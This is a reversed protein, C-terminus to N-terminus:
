FMMLGWGLCPPHSVNKVKTFLPFVGQVQVTCTQGLQYSFFYLCLLVIPDGKALSRDRGSHVETAAILSGSDLSLLYILPLISCLVTCYQSFDRGFCCCKCQIHAERGLSVSFRGTNAKLWGGKPGRNWGNLLSFAM